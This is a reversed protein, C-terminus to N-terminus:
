TAADSARRPWKSSPELKAAHEPTMVDCREPGQAPMAIHPTQHANQHSRVDCREPGQAPMAIPRALCVSNAPEPKPENAKLREVDAEAEEARKRWEDREAIAAEADAVHTCPNTVIRRLDLEAKEARERLEDREAIAAEAEVQALELRDRLTGVLWRPARDRAFENAERLERQLRENEQTVAEFSVRLQQTVAPPDRVDLEHLLLELQSRLRDAMTSMTTRAGM